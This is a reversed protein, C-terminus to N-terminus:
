LLGCSATSMSCRRTRGSCRDVLHGWRQPSVTWDRRDDPFIAPSSCLGGGSQRRFAPHDRWYFALTLHMNEQRTFSGSLSSEALAKAMTCLRDKIASELTIAIFLRM